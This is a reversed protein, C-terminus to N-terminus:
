GFILAAIDEPTAGRIYKEVATKQLVAVFATRSFEAGVLADEIVSVDGDGFFDGEIRAARVTAKEGVKGALCSISVCVTGFPFRAKRVVDFDDAGARIRWRETRYKEKALASIEKKESESLTRKEAGSAVFYSELYSVLDSATMESFKQPLFEKINAVRASVSKIGKSRIKAEDTKLAASLEDMNASFLLTGHHMIVDGAKGRYECRATGSIKKGNVTIDNRGSCEATIGIGDLAEIVPRSFESFNEPSLAKPMIFTYNINGLDHFVAGGGTLRRVVAIGNKQTYDFNVTEEANQNKGIIVARDNKWLMVTPESSINMLYEECAM